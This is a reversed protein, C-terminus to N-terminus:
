FFFYYWFFFLVLISTHYLAYGMYITKNQGTSDFICKAALLDGNKIVIPSKLSNFVQPWQPNSKGIMNWGTENKLAASVVRGM